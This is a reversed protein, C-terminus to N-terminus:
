KDIIKKVFKRFTDYLVGIMYSKDYIKIRIQGLFNYKKNYNKIYENDKINIKKHKYVKYISKRYKSTIDSDIIIYIYLNLYVCMEFEKDYKFYKYKERLLIEIYNLARDIDIVKENIKKTLSGERQLYNYLANNLISIKPNYIYMNALIFLDEAYNLDGKFPIKNNIIFERKIFKDWLYQSTRGILISKLYDDSKNSNIRSIFKKDNETVIYSNYMVIDSNNCEANNYLQEICEKEIWDDADVFLIYKGIAIELGDYRAKMVGENKKDIIRIRKDYNALINIKNLTCDTSGDNVIIIEINKETQNIVSMICKEIYSEVNYATIVISAKIMASKRDGHLKM